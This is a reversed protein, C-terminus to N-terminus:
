PAFHTNEEILDLPDQPDVGDMYQLTRNLNTLRYVLGLWNNIIAKGTDRWTNDVLPLLEAETFGPLETGQKRAQNMEQWFRNAIKKAADCFYHEPYPPPSDLEGNL